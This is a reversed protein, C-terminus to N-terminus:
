SSRLVLRRRNATPLSTPETESTARIAANALFLRASRLRSFVTNLSLGLVEAIDRATHGDFDHMILIARRRVDLRRLGEDIIRWQERVELTVDPLSAPDVTEPAQDLVERHNRALRRYDSTVRILIGFLWPRFPREADYKWLNKFVAFLVDHTVDPLDRPPVGMRHVNAWVYRFERAYIASFTALNVILDSVETTPRV